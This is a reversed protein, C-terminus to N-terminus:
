AGQARSRLPKVRLKSSSTVRNQTRVSLAVTHLINPMAHRVTPAMRSRTAPVRARDGARSSPTVHMPM